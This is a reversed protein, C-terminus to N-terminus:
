NCYSIDLSTGSEEDGVQKAKHFRWTFKNDNKM